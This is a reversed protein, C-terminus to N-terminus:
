ALGLVQWCLPAIRLSVKVRAWCLKLIWFFVLSAKMRYKGIFSQERYQCQYLSVEPVPLIDTSEYLHTLSANERVLLNSSPRLSDKEGINEDEYNKESEYNTSEENDSTLSSTGSDKKPPSSKPLEYTGEKASAKESVPPKASSSSTNVSSSASVSSEKSYM